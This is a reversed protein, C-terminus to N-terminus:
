FFLTSNSSCLAQYLGSLVCLLSVKIRLLWHCVFLLCKMAISLCGMWILPSLNLLNILPLPIWCYWGNWSIICIKLGLQLFSVRSCHSECLVNPSQHTYISVHTRSWKVHTQHGVHKFLSLHLLSVFIYVTVPDWKDCLFKFDSYQFLEQSVTAPLRVEERFVKRIAYCLFKYVVVNYTM